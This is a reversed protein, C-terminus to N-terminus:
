RCMPPVGLRQRSTGLVRECAAAIALLREEGMTPAALQLGIPMGAVDLGVPMSVACLRLLNVMSTNRSENPDPKKKLEEVTPPTISITPMAFVDVEAWRPEFAKTMSRALHWRRYYDAAAMKGGALVKTKLSPRLTEIWSPLESSLFAYLEVTCPDGDDFVTQAKRAEPLKMPILRAGARALEDLARKVGEAVSPTSDDWYHDEAVGIRLGAVDSSAMARGLAKGDCSPDLGAFALGCDGVTRALPGPTDLTPSCPVIGDLSWRGHTIKLGVNGTLCAPERVSGTTDSGIGVLATGECLSTAAGSSSGGPPRVHVPDWPNRPTHHQSNTGYGYEGYAFESTHTRGVIVALQQRLRRVLPGEARFKEPLEKASGAYIPLGEMAFLDKVSVPIGQLPGLDAGAAFAADAAKAARRAEAPLFQMYSGITKGFKEQRAIADEALATATVKGDRLARAADAVTLDAMSPM